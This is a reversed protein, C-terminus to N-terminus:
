IMERAPGPLPLHIRCHVGGNRFELVTVAKLQYPLAEEILETGFGHHAPQVAVVPVGTEEWVFELHRGVAKSHHVSWSISLNGRGSKLAGFKLSNTTLEHVALSIGEAQKGFLEVEPGEILLRPGDSEGVSLLEDRIINELNVKGQANRAVGVQTRGLSDLRGRFHDAINDLSGGAELTRSFVSRILSLINRVRHQLEALLAEQRERLVRADHIDINMVVWKEVAGEDSLLPVARLNSWRYSGSPAHMLRMDTDVPHRREMSERWASLVGQRDDPHVAEMWGGDRATKGKQGTYAQWSPSGTVVMGREDSEWVAQSIGEVLTRSRVEAERLDAEMFSREHELVHAKTTEFVTVLIGAVVGNERIPSYTLTFWADRRAGDRELPYLKDEYTITEGMWVRQYIPGNIDWVEPWCEQTPQGLGAPHKRGLIVAYGDNYIQILDAGWLLVMPFGHALVMECTTTLVPSWDSKPGLAAGWDHRAVREQMSDAAVQPECGVKSM